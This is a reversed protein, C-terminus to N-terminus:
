RHAQIPFTTKAYVWHHCTHFVCNYFSDKAPNYAQNEHVSKSYCVFIKLADKTSNNPLMIIINLYRSELLYQIVKLSIIPYNYCCENSVVTCCMLRELQRNLLVLRSKLSRYRYLAKRAIGGIIVLVKISGSFSLTHALVQFHLNGIAAMFIPM